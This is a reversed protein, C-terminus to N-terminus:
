LRSLWTVKGDARRLANLFHSEEPSRERNIDAADFKQKLKTSQASSAVLTGNDRDGLFDTTIKLMDNTIHELASRVINSLKSCFNTM